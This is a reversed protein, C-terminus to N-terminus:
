IGILQFEAFQVGNSDGRKRTVLLRYATFREVNPFTVKEGCEFRGPDMDLGSRNQYLLTWSSGFILETGIANSGELTVDLPDRDPNDNATCFQFGVALSSAGRPTVYFGTDVGCRPGPISIEGCPGYQFLKTAMNNDCGRHPVESPPYQNPGHGETSATSNGGTVTASVGFTIDATCSLPIFELCFAFLSFLNLGYPGTGRITTTKAASTTTVPDTLKITMMTTGSVYGLVYKEQLRRNM